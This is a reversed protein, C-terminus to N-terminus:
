EPAPADAALAISALLLEPDEASREVTFGLSRVFALMPANEALVEGVVRRLGVARAWALGARMLVTGLGRGKVDSRVVVAFEGEDGTRIIRVVGLTEPIAGGEAGASGDETTAIIAMERDYDIQTMRAIQEPTLSRIPAFFRLRVDEPTLRAFFAAHADADEPRIPRLTVVQGDRLTVRQVLQEPYPAIALHTTGAGPEPAIRIKIWADLALVGGPGALLPNVDAELVDPFDVALQALRVLTEYIAERDAAPQDRFGALVASVRTRAVLALALARNLPPLDAAVDAAIGATTGGQGFGIAPGFLPDRALRLFLEQQGARAIQRQVLFGERRASPALRAVRSAMAEAAARVASATDLDRVVGGVLTKHPLDPSRIKLVIPFGLAAAAEAASEADTAVRAPATPIGYANLLAEAEDETLTDRGARRARAVIRRVTERDPAVGLVTRPPLERAAARTQFERVLIGAARAASGITAFAPIGAAGLRALIREAAPGGPVAAIIPLRAASAHARVLADVAAEEEDLGTLVAIAADEPVPPTLAAALRDASNEGASGTGSAQCPESAPQADANAERFVPLAGAARAARCALVGLAPTAAAILVREGQMRRTQALITAAEFLEELGGVDVVGARRLAAAFVLGPDISVEAEPDPCPDPATRLAVVSRRRAVARAASLFGRRDKLRSVELLVAATAADRSLWDLVATFGLDDNRGLTVVHSFGIGSAEAHDLVAAACGRDQCVLALSGRAPLRPLLSANLGLAPSIVGASDPGLVRLPPSSAHSPGLLVAVGAGRSALDSLATGVSAEPLSVVALDPPEPLAGIAPFATLGCVVGGGPAVPLIPGAFGGALLNALIQREPTAETWREGIVAVSRPRLLREAPSATHILAM